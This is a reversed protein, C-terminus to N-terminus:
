DNELNAQWVVRTGSHTMKRVRVQEGREARERAVFMAPDQRARMLRKWGGEGDGILVTYNGSGSEM